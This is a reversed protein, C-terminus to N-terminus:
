SGVILDAPLRPQEASRIQQWRRQDVSGIVEIARAGSLGSVMLAAGREASVERTSAPSIEDSIGDMDSKTKTPCVTGFQRSRLNKGSGTRDLLLAPTFDVEVAIVADTAPPRHSKRGTRHTRASIPNMAKANGIIRTVGQECPRRPQRNAKFLFSVSM